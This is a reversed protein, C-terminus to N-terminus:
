LIRLESMLIEINRLNRPSPQMFEIGIGGDAHNATVRAAMQFQLRRLSMYVEVPTGTKL